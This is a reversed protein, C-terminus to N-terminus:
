ALAQVVTHSKVRDANDQLDQFIVGKFFSFLAIVAASEVQWGPLGQIAATVESLYGSLSKEELDEPMPPLSFDFDQRLRAALAPNVFPDEELADLLFPEQLSKRKLVVPVMLLPSRLPEDEPDRWALMGAALYLIHLGRERYDTQFRRYLNTLIHL